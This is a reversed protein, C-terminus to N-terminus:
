VKTQKIIKRIKTFSISLRGPEDLSLHVPKSATVEEFDIIEKPISIAWSNGVLRLKVEFERQQLKRFQGYEATDGPHLYKKGCNPCMWARIRFGDKIVVGKETAKHCKGCIITTEYIDEM